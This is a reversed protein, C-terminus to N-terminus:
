VEALAELVEIDGRIYAPQGSNKSVFVPNNGMLMFSFDKTQVFKESNYYFVWGKETEVTEERLLIVKDNIDSLDFEKNIFTIAIKRAESIDLM